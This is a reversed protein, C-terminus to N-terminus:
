IITSQNINSLDWYINECNEQCIACRPSDYRVFEGCCGLIDSRNLVDLKSFMNKETIISLTLASIRYWDNEYQYTYYSENARVNKFHTKLDM